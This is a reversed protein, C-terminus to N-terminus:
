NKKDIPLWPVVIGAVGAILGLIIGAGISLGSNLGNVMDVVMVLTAIVAAITIVIKTWKAQKFMEVIAIALVVAFCVFSIWGDGDSGKASISIGFASASLWPLFTAIMGLLGAVAAIISKISIPKKM